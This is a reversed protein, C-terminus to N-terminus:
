VVVTINEAFPVIIEESSQGFLFLEITAESSEIFLLMKGRFNILMHVELEEFSCRPLETFDSTLNRLM